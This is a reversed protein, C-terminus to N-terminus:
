HCDNEGRPVGPSPNRGRRCPVVLTLTIISVYGIESALLAPNTASPGNPASSTKPLSNSTVDSPGITPIADASALCVNMMKGTSTGAYGNRTFVDIKSAESNSSVRACGRTLTVKANPSENLEVLLTTNPGLSISGISPMVITTDGIEPTVIESGSLITAGSLVPSGNVNVPQTGQITLIATPSNNRRLRTSGSNLKAASIVVYSETVTFVLLLVLVKGISRYKSLFRM